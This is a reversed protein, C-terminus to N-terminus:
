ASRACCGGACCGRSTAPSSTRRPRARGDGRAAFGALSRSLRSASSADPASQSDASVIISGLAHSTSMGSSGSASRSRGLVARPLTDSGRERVEGRLELLRLTQQAPLDIVDIPEMGLILPQSGALQSRRDRWEHTVEKSARRRRDAPRRSRSGTLARDPRQVLSGKSTSARAPIMLKSGSASTCNSGLSCLAALTTAVPSAVQSRRMASTTRM